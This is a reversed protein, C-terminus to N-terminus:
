DKKGQKALKEQYRRRHAEVRRLNNNCSWPNLYVSFYGVVTHVWYGNVEWLYQKGLQSLSGTVLKIPMPAFLTGEEKRYKQSVVFLPMVALFDIGNQLSLLDYQYSKM